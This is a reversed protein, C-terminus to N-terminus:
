ISLVLGIPIQQEYFVVTGIGAIGELDYDWTDIPTKLHFGFHGLMGYVESDPLPKQDMGHPAISLLRVLDNEIMKSSFSIVFNRYHYTIAQNRDLPCPTKKCTLITHDFTPGDVPGLKRMKNTNDM